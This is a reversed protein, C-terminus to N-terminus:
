AFHTFKVLDPDDIQIATNIESDIVRLLSQESSMRDIATSYLAFPSFPSPKRALSPRNVVSSISRVRVMRNGYVSALRSASRRVCWIFAM